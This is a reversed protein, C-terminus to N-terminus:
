FNLKCWWRNPGDGGFTAGFSEDSRNAVRIRGPEDHSATWLANNSANSQGGAVNIPFFGSSTTAVALMNDKTWDFNEELAVGVAMVSDSNFQGCFLGAIGVLDFRKAAPYNTTGFRFLTGAWGNGELKIVGRPVHGHNAIHFFQLSRSHAASIFGDCSDIYVDQPLDTARFTAQDRPRWRDPDVSRVISVRRWRKVDILAARPISGRYGNSSAPFSTQTGHVERFICNQLTTDRLEHRRTVNGEAFVANGVSEFQCHSWLGTVFDRWHGQHVSLAQADSYDENTGEKYVAYPAGGVFCTDVHGYWGADPALAIAAFRGSINCKQLVFDGHAAETFTVYLGYYCGDTFLLEATKQGGRWNVGVHFGSVFVSRIVTREGASIGSYNEYIQGIRPNKPNYAKTWDDPKFGYREVFGAESEPANWGRWNGPGMISFHALECDAHLHLHEGSWSVFGNEVNALRPQVVYNDHIPAKNDRWQLITAGRGHGHINVTPQNKWIWVDNAPYFLSRNFRGVGSPLQVVAGFRTSFKDWDLVVQNIAAQTAAWDIEDELSDAHPYVVQADELAEFFDSLPHSQGDWIAGFNIAHYHSAQRANKISEPLADLSVQGKDNLRLLQGSLDTDGGKDTSRELDQEVSVIRDLAEKLAPSLISNVDATPLYTDGKSEFAASAASQLFFQLCGRRNTKM